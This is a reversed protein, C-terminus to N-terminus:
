SFNLKNNLESEIDNKVSLVFDNDYFLNNKEKFFNSTLHQLFLLKKIELNEIKNFEELFKNNISENIHSNYEDKIIPLYEFIKSNWPKNPGNFHVIYAHQYEANKQEVINKKYYAYNWGFHLTNWKQDLEYTNNILAFNMISQDNHLFIKNYKNILMLCECKETFQFKKCLDLNLIWVGGNFFKQGLNYHKKSFFLKHKNYSYFVKKNKNNIFSEIKIKEDIEKIVNPLENANKVNNHFEENFPSYCLYGPNRKCKEFLEIIDKKILLDLDLHLIIGTLHNWILPIYFRVYVTVSRLQTAASDYDYFENCNIYVDNYETFVNKIEYSVNSFETKLIKEFVWLKNVDIGCYTLCFNFNKMNDTTNKINNILYLVQVFYNEDFILVINNM